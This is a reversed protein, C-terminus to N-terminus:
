KPKISKLDDKLDDSTYPAYVSSKKVEDIMEWLPMQAKQAAQWLTLKGTQYDELAREVTWEKISKVVFKRIVTSRDVSEKQAIMDIEKVIESELRTTITVGKDM